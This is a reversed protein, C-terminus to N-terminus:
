EDYTIKLTESTPHSQCTLIYGENVEEDSLAFNNDMSVTGELVKARCTCCVGGKCSYPADYGNNLIHDLIPEDSTGMSVEITEDDLIATVKSSEVSEHGQSDSEESESKLLTPTTFLEYHIKDKSVGFEHLVETAEVIMAEPGCLYFGNAKLLDLNNKIYNKLAAGDLRGQECDDEKDRSLFHRIEINEIQELQRLEDYFMIDSKSRNGFLLKFGHNRDKSAKIMSLIPTIGSGAAIAVSYEGPTPQQLRFNGQPLMVELPDGKSLRSNIYNSVIGNEVAKVGVTLLDANPSSAISYSRREENGDIFFRFTVYQGAEFSFDAEEKLKFSLAVSHDTLKKVEHVVVNYFQKKYDKKGDKNKKFVNFIGM